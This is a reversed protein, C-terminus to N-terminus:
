RGALYDIVDNVRITEPTLGLDELVDLAADGAVNSEILVPVGTSASDDVIPALGTNVVLNGAITVVGDDRRRLESDVKIGFHEANWIVNHRVTAPSSVRIGLGDNWRERTSVNWIANQEVVADADYTRVGRGITIAGGSHVEIDHILNNRIIVDEVSAKIDIAEASTNSIRNGVIRVGSVVDVSGDPLTGGTGLYIGEGLDRYEFEGNTGPRRGTRDISNGEITVDTSRALIHIAEQGIDNVINGRLIIDNSSHVRIGWLSEVVQVGEVTISESDEILVGAGTEYTGSTFVVGGDPATIGLDRRGRVALPEYTGPGIIITDGPVSVEVAYSATRLPDSASWGGDPRDEGDAAVFLVDTRVAPPATTTSSPPATAESSTSPAVSEAVVPPTSRDATSPFPEDIPPVTTTASEVDSDRASHIGIAYAGAGLALVIAATGVALGVDRM